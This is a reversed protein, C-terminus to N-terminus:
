SKRQKTVTFISKPQTDQNYIFSYKYQRNGLLSNSIQQFKQEMEPERVGIQTKIYVKFDYKGEQTVSISQFSKGNASLLSRVVSRFHINGYINTGVILNRGPVLEIRKGCKGCSCIGPVYKAQDGTWYRIFPMLHQSLSTVVVNGVIDEEEIIENEDNLLEFRINDDNVHLYGLKCGFAITWVERCGYNDVVMCNYKQSIDESEEKSMYSGNNEIVKLYSFHLPFKELVDTYLGLRYSNIHWWRLETNSLYKLEKKIKEEPACQTDIPFPFPYQDTTFNHIFNFFEKPSVKYISNRLKWLQNGLILRENKTKISLSPIGTTGSSYEVVILKGNIEYVYEQKFDKEPNVVEEFSDDIYENSIFDKMNDMMFKKDVVPILRFLSDLEDIDHTSYIREPINSFYYPVHRHASELIEKIKNHYM